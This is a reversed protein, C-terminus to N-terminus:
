KTAMAALLKAARSPNFVGCDCQRALEKAADQASKRGAKIDEAMSNVRAASIMGHGCMTVVGLTEEPPLKETKGWVGLSYTAAHRHIGNKQCMGQVRDFLGSVVLSLGLDAEKADKLMGAADAENDFVAHVVGGDKKINDMVNDLGKAFRNGYFANGMNVPNHRQAIELFERLKPGSDKNNIGFAPMYLFVYDGNLSERTGSRHLTHTM